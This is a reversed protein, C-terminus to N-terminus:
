GNKYNINENKMKSNEIHLTCVDNYFTDAM